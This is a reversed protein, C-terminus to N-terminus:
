FVSCCNFELSNLLLKVLLRVEDYQGFSDSLVAYNEVGNVSFNQIISAGGTTSHNVKAHELFMNM